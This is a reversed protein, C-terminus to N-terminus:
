IDESRWVQCCGVMLGEAELQRSRQTAQREKLTVVQVGPAMAPVETGFLWTSLGLKQLNQSSGFPSGLPQTTSVFTQWVDSSFQPWPGAKRSQIIFPNPDCSGCKLVQIKQSPLFMLHSTDSENFINAWFVPQPSDFMHKDHWM